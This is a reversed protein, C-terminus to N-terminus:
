LRTPFSIPFWVHLDKSCFASSKASRKRFHPFSPPHTIRGSATNLFRTSGRLGVITTLQTLPPLSNCIRHYGSYPFSQTHKREPEERSQNLTCKEAEGRRGSQGPTLIPNSKCQCSAQLASGTQVTPGQLTRGTCRETM